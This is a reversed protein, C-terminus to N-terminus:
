TGSSPTYLAGVCSLSSPVSLILFQVTQFSSVNRGLLLITWCITISVTDLLLMINQTFGFTEFINYLHRRELGNGNFWDVNFDGALLIVGSACSHKEVYNSFEDCLSMQEGDTNIAGKSRPMRYITVLRITISSVTIVLEM